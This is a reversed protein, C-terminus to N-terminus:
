RGYKAYANKTQVLDAALCVAVLLLDLKCDASHIPAMQAVLSRPKGRTTDVVIRGVTELPGGNATRRAEYVNSNVDGACCLTGFSAFSLISYGAQAVQSDMAQALMLKTGSGDTRVYTFSDAVPSPRDITACHRGGLYVAAAEGEEDRMLQVASGDPLTLEAHLDIESDEIHLSLQPEIELSDWVAFDGPGMELTTELKRAEGKPLTADMENHSRLKITVSHLGRLTAAAKAAVAELEEYVARERQRVREEDDETAM